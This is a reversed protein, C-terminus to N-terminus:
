NICAGLVRQVAATTSNTHMSYRHTQSSADVATLPVIRSTLLKFATQRITLWLEMQARVIVGKVLFWVRSPPARLIQSAALLPRLNRPPVLSATRAEM